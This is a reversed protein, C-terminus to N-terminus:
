EITDMDLRVRMLQNLMEIFAKKEESYQPGIADDDSDGLGVIEYSSAEEVHFRSEWYFFAVIALVIVLIVVFVVSTADKKKLKRRRRYRPSVM